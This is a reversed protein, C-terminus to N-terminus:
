QFDKVTTLPPTPQVIQAPAQRPSEEERGFLAVTDAIVDAVAPADPIYKFILEKGHGEKLEFIVKGFPLLNAFQTQSTVSAFNELHLQKVTQRFISSQNVIIVRTTTVFIFDYKWDIYRTLLPYPVIVLWVIGAALLTWQWPAATLVDATVGLGAIILTIFFYKVVSILFIFWHFFTTIVHREGPSLFKEELKRLNTELAFIRM